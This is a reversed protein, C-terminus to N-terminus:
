KMLKEIETKISGNGNNKFLVSVGGSNVYYLANVEVGALSGNHGYAIGAETRWLELGLGYECDASQCGGLQVHKMEEVLPLPILQGDFLGKMFKGLDACTSVLGGDGGGDAEARDWASVDTVVGDGYLEAYGRALAGDPRKELYTNRLQLPQFIFENMAQQLSKATIREVILQLLWYNTNSYFYGTGPEFHLPENYVYRRLTEELSLSGIFSPRNILDSKYRVSENPPDVIGSLHALLHRVTIQDASPIKSKMDPLLDTLKSELSVEGRHVLALVTVATFMKTISGVRFPVTNTMQTKHELNSYGAAGIWLGEAPLDILLQAGPSGTQNRYQELSSQYLANKPHSAFSIVEYTPPTPVTIQESCATVVGAIFVYRLFKNM